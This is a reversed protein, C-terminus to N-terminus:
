MCMRFVGFGGSVFSVLLARLANEGEVKDGLRLMDFLDLRDLDM